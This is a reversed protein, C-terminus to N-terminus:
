RATTSPRPARAAAEGASSKADRGRRFAEVSRASVLYRGAVRRVEGLDGRLARRWVQGWSLGLKRAADPLSLEDAAGGNDRM